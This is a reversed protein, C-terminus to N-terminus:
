TLWLLCPSSAQFSAFFTHSLCDSFCGSFIYTLSHFLVPCLRHTHTHTASVTFSGFCSLSLVLSLPHTNTMGGEVEWKDHVLYCLSGNKYPETLSRNWIMFRWEFQKKKSEANFHGESHLFQEFWVLAVIQKIKNVRNSSEEREIVGEERNLVHSWTVRACVCQFCM